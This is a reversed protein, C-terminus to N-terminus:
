QLLHGPWHHNQSVSVMRLHQSDGHMYTGWDSAASACCTHVDIVAVSRMLQTHTLIHSIDWPQPGDLTRYESQSHHALMEDSVGERPPRHQERSFAQYLKHRKAEFMRPSHLPCLVM